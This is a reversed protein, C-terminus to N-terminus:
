LIISKCPHPWRSFLLHLTEKCRQSAASLRQAVGVQLPSDAPAASFNAAIIRAAAARVSLGKIDCDCRDIGVLNNSKYKAWEVEKSILHVVVATAAKHTATL